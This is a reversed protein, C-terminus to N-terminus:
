LGRILRRLRDLAEDGEPLLQLLAEAKGRVDDAAALAAPLDIAEGDDLLNSLVVLSDELREAAAVIKAHHQPTYDEGLCAYFDTVGLVDAAPSKAPDCMEVRRRLEDSYEILEREIVTRVTAADKYANEARLAACGSLLATAIVLSAIRRM